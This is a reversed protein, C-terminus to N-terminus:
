FSLIIKSSWYWHEKEIIREFREVAGSADQLRLHDRSARAYIALNDTLSRKLSVSWKWDDKSGTPIEHPYVDNPEYPPTNDNLSSYWEAEVSFYDLLNFAPINLGFMIPMRELPKEYYVRYNKVGLWAWEGYIKLDEKGFLEPSGFIAKIDLAARFSLKTGRHSYDIKEIVPKVEYIPNGVFDYDIISDTTDQRVEIDMSDRNTFETRVAIIRDAMVGVGIDLIKGIPYSALYTLSFDYYPLQEM